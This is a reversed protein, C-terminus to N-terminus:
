SVGREELGKDSFEASQSVLDLYMVGLSWDLLTVLTDFELHFHIM